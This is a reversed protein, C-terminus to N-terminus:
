SDDVVLQGQGGRARFTRGAGGVAILTRDGDVLGTAELGERVLEHETVTSRGSDDRIRVSISPVSLLESRGLTPWSLAMNLVDGERSAVGQLRGDTVLVIECEENEAVPLCEANRLNHTILGSVAYWRVRPDSPEEPDSGLQEIEDARLLTLDLRIESVFLLEFDASPSEQTWTMSGVMDVPRGAISLRSVVDIAGEPIPVGDGVLGASTTSTTADEDEADIGAETTTTTTEESSDRDFREKVQVDCSVIFLASIVALNLAWRM